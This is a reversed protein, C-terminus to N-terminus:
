PRSPWALPTSRFQVAGTIGALPLLVVFAGLLQYFLTQTAPAESLRSTRVAVTTLGWSAGACLGMLDGVFSSDSTAGSPGLFTVAVGTFAVSLGVWQMPALREEPLRLQLGIAAFMPATYLFVAMHSATTWRLGEAIFLFEAAFLGGVVLGPGLAVGKVWTERVVFRAYFWVLLAAVGSRLSAQLLTPVDAAAAKLAVQQLGWLLCLMIMVVNAKGDVARRM